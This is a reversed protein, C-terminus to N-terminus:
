VVLFKGKVISYVLFINSTASKFSRVRRDKATSVPSLIDSKRAIFFVSRGGRSASGGIAKM